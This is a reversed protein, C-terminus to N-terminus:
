LLLTKRFHDRLAAADKTLPQAKPDFPGYWPVTLFGMVGIAPGFERIPVAAGGALFLVEKGTERRIRVISEVSAALGEPKEYKDVIKVVDAGREAQTRAVFLNEEVTLPLHTHSSILVEAGKEHLVRILEKQKKVAEEKVALEWKAGRDFFDGIVDLLTAGGEAAFLLGEVCEEDTYEADSGKRYSTAYVPLSGAAEIVKRVNEKTRYERKLKEIQFGIADAGQEVADRIKAVCEEPTECLIMGIVFPRDANLFSKKDNM